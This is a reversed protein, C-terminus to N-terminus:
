ARSAEPQIVFRIARLALRALDTPAAESCGGCILHKAREQQPYDVVYLRIAPANRCWECTLPSEIEVLDHAM